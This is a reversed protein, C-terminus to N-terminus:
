IEDYLSLIYVIFNHRLDNGWVRFLCINHREVAVRLQLLNHMHPTLNSRSRSRSMHNYCIIVSHHWFHVGRVFIIYFMYKCMNRPSTTRNKDSSYSYRRGDQIKLGLPWKCGSTFFCRGVKQLNITWQALVPKLIEQPHTTCPTVVLSLVLPLVVDNTKSSRTDAAKSM